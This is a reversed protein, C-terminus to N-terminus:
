YEQPLSYDLPALMAGNKKAVRGAKIVWGVDRLASIDVLPNGQLAIIDASSGPEVTGTLGEVAFLEAAVVTASRLADAPSMGLEVMRVLEDANRGHPYIGCDTGFAIKVGQEYAREFARADNRLTVSRPERGGMFRKAISPPEAVTLTPVLMAGNQKMLKLGADSILFGHEISDAGAELADIIADPDYAHVTVKIGRRHAAFVIAQMETATMHQLLGTNSSFGGTAKFKILDSGNKELHRVLTRCDDAGDCVGAEAREDPDFGTSEDGHGATVSISPGSALITPGIMNGSAIADRVAFVSQSDSGLDRLATFGAALNLRAAIVANVTAEGPEPYSNIGGFGSSFSGTARSLHVHADFLGAMVFQERLDLLETIADGTDIEDIDLYGSQVSDIRDNRVIVTQETLAAQGAEQLLTGAYIVLVTDPRQPKKPGFPFGQGAAVQPIVLPIVLAIVLVIVKAVVTAREPGQRFEYKDM